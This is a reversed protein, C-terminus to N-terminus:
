GMKPENSMILPLFPYNSKWYKQAIVFSRHLAYSFYVSLIEKQGGILFEKLTALEEYTSIREKVVM